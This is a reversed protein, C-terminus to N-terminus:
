DDGACAFSTSLDLLYGYMIILALSSDLLM